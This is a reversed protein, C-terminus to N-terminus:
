TFECSRVDSIVYKCMLFVNNVPHLSALKCPAFVNNVTLVNALTCIESKPKLYDEVRPKLIFTVLSSYM